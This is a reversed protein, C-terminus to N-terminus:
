GSATGTARAPAVDALFSHRLDDALAALARELGVFGGRGFVRGGSDLALAEIAHGQSFHGSRFV